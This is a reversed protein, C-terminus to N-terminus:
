GHIMFNAYQIRRRWPDFLDYVVYEPRSYLQVNPNRNFPSSKCTTEGGNLTRIKTIIMVSPFRLTILQRLLRPKLKIIAQNVMDLDLFNVHVENRNRTNVPSPFKSLM